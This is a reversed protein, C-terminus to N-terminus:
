RVQDHDAVEKEFTDLTTTEVDLLIGVQMTGCPQYRRITLRKTDCTIGFTESGPQTTQHNRPLIGAVTFECCSLECKAITNMVMIWEIYQM